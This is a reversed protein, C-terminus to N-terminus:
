HHKKKDYKTNNRYTILVPYHDSIDTILIAAKRDTHQITNINTYINDILTATTHVVRTPKNIMPILGATLFIDLLACTNRHKEIKLLDFNMDSGLIIKATETQLKNLVHEYHNLAEIEPTNPIRHIEGVITKSKQGTTELFISEFEGDVNIEIDNRRKYPIDNRIFIAVGGKSNTGRNRTELKYGEIQYLHQNNNNLFTECLLIFEIHVNINSLRRIITQLQEHKAPLSHINIHITSQLIDLNNPNLNELEYYECPTLINTMDLENEDADSFRCNIHNQFTSNTGPLGESPYDLTDDM